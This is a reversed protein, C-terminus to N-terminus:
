KNTEPKDLESDQKDVSKKRRKKEKGLGTGFIIGLSVGIAIGAGINDMGAGIAVGVGAGIAIGAGLNNRKRKASKRTGPKKAM